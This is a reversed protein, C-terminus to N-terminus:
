RALSEVFALLEKHPSENALSPDFECHNRNLTSALSAGPSIRQNVAGLVAKNHGDAFANPTVKKMSTIFRHGRTVISKSSRKAAAILLDDMRGKHRNNPAVWLGVRPESGFIVGARAKSAAPFLQKYHDRFANVRNTVGIDDADVVIGVGDAAIQSLLELASDGLVRDIGGM